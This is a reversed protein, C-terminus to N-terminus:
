SPKRASCSTSTFLMSPTELAGDALAENVLGRHPLRDHLARAPLVRPKSPGSYYSPMSGRGRSTLPSVTLVARQPGRSPKLPLAYLRARFGKVDLIDALARAMPRGDDVTLICLRYGKSAGNKPVPDLRPPHRPRRRM